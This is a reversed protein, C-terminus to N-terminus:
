KSLVSKYSERRTYALYIGLILIAVTMPTGEPALVAHFLFIQLAIPALLILALSVYRNALLMLGVVVETGKLLPFFYPAAMLGMMYKMAGEPLPPQPLFGLFGNLGFVFFILGLIVRAITPAHKM